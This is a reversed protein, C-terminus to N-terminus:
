ATALEANKLTREVAAWSFTTEFGFVQGFFAELQEATLEMFPVHHSVGPVVLREVPLTRALRETSQRDHECGVSYVCTLTTSM